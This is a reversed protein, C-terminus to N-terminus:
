ANIDRLLVLVDQQAVLMIMLEMTVSRLEESCEMVVSFHALQLALVNGDQKSLVLQAAATELFKTETTVIRLILQLVRTTSQIEVFLFVLHQVLEQVHIDPSLKALQQVDMERYKMQIMVLKQRHRLQTEAILLVHLVLVQVSIDRNLRVHPLVDTVQFAMQIMVNSLTPRLTQTILGMEVISQVSQLLTSVLGALKLRVLRLVVMM